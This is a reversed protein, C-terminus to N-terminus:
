RQLLYKKELFRYTLRLVWMLSEKGVWNLM